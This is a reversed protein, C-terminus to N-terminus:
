VHGNVLIGPGHGLVVIPKLNSDEVQCFFRGRMDKEIGSCGLKSRDNMQTIVVLVLRLSSVHNVCSFLDKLNLNYALQIDRSFFTRGDAQVV